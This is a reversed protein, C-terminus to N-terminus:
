CQQTCKCLTDFDARVRDIPVRVETTSSTESPSPIPFRRLCIQPRIHQLSTGLGDKSSSSGCCREGHSSPSPICCCRLSELMCWWTCLPRTTSTACTCRTIPAPTKEAAGRPRQLLHHTSEVHIVGENYHDKPIKELEVTGDRVRKGKVCRLPPQEFTHMMQTWLFENNGEVVDDFRGKKREGVVVGCLWLGM